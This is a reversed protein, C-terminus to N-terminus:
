KGSVFQLWAAQQSQRLTERQRELEAVSTAAVTMAHGAANYRDVAPQFPFIFQGDVVKYAGFERALVAVYSEYAHYFETRASMLRTTLDTMEAHRRDINDLLGGLSEKGVHLAHANNEITDREAKLLAAYRPMFAAANAEATKLNRRLAELDARSAAGLNINGSIAPREVDRFMTESAAETDDVARNAMALLQLFRNTPHQRLVAEIQGPDSIGQLIAQSERAAIRDQLRGLDAVYYAGVSLVALVLFLCLFAIWVRLKANLGSPMPM